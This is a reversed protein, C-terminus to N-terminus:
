GDYFEKELLGTNLSSPSNLREATLCLHSNTSLHGLSHSRPYQSVLGPLPVPLPVVPVQLASGDARDWATVPVWRVAKVRHWRGDNFSGNVMISAVGSGLNYSFADPFFLVSFLFFASFCLCVTTWLHNEILFNEPAWFTTEKVRFLALFVSPEWLLGHIVLVSWPNFRQGKCQSCPIKVM